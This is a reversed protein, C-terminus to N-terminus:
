LDSAANIYTHLIYTNCVYYGKMLHSSSFFLFLFLFLHVLRGFPLAALVASTRVPPPLALGVDLGFDLHSSLRQSRKRKDAGKREKTHSLILFVLELKRQERELLQRGHQAFFVPSSVIFSFFSFFFFFRTRQADCARKLRPRNACSCEKM